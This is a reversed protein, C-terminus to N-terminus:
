ASKNKDEDSMMYIVFITLNFLKIFELFPIDHIYKGHLVSHRTLPVDDLSDVKSWDSNIFRQSLLKTSNEFVDQYNKEIDYDSSVLTKLKGRSINPRIGTQSFLQESCYYDLLSYLYQYCMVYNRIDQRLMKKMQRIITKHRGSVLPEIYELAQKIRKGDDRMYISIMYRDFAERDEVKSLEVYLAPMDLVLPYAWGFEILKRNVENRYVLPFRIVYDNLTKIAQVFSKQFTGVLQRYSSTIDLIKNITNLMQESDFFERIQETAKIVPEFVSTDIVPMKKYVENLNEIFEKSILEESKKEENSQADVEKKISM